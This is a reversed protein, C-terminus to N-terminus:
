FCWSGGSWGGGNSASLLDCCQWWSSTKKGVVPSWILQERELVLFFRLPLEALPALACTTMIGARAKGATWWSIGRM